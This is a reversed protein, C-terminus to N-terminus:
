LINKKGSCFSYSHALQSEQAKAPHGEDSIQTDFGEVKLLDADVM